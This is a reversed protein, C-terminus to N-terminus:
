WIHDGVPYLVRLVRFSSTMVREVVETSIQRFHSKAPFRACEEPEHDAEADRGSAWVWLGDSNWAEWGASEFEVVVAGLFAKLRESNEDIEVLLNTSEDVILLIKLWHFMLPWRSLHCSGSLHQHIFQYMEMSSEFWSSVEWFIFLLFFFLSLLLFSTPRNSDVKLTAEGKLDFCYM